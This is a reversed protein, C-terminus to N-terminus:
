LDNSVNPELSYVKQPLYKVIFFTVLGVFLGAFTSALLMLPLLSIIYINNVILSAVFLQVFNFVAAGVFSICMISVKPFVLLYLLSMVTLSLISSPMSYIIGFINGAFVGSLFVKVIAVVFADIVGLMILACLLVVNSLGLKSGPAFVLIPPILNELFYMILALAVFMAVRVFRRIDVKNRRNTM